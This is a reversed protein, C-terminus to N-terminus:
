TLIEALHTIFLQMVQENTNVYTQALWSHGRNSVAVIINIKCKLTRDRMSHERGREFWSFSKFDSVSLWSEDINVIHKGETFLELMKQAYLCRLVRNRETNGYPSVRKIRGYCLGFDKSLAM